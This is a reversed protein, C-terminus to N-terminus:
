IENLFDRLREGSAEDVPLNLSGNQVLIVNWGSLTNYTAHHIESKRVRIEVWELPSLLDEMLGRALELTLPFKFSGMEGEFARSMRLYSGNKDSWIGEVYDVSVRLTVATGGGVNSADTGESM